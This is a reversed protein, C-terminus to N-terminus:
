QFENQKTKIEWVSTIGDLCNLAIYRQSNSILIEIKSNLFVPLALLLIVALVHGQGPLVALM